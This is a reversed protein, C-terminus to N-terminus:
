SLQSWRDRAVLAFCLKRRNRNLAHPRIQVVMPAPSRDSVTSLTRPSHTLLLPRYVRVITPLWILYAGHLQSQHTTVAFKLAKLEHSTIEAIVTSISELHNSSFCSYKRIRMYYHRPLIPQTPKTFPGQILHRTSKQRRAIDFISPNCNTLQM